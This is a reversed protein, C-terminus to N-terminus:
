EMKYAIFDDVFEYEPVSSAIAAATRKRYTGVPSIISTPQASPEPKPELTTGSANGFSFVTTTEPGPEPTPEPTPQPTTGTASGSSTADGGDDWEDGDGTDCTQRAELVELVERAEKMARIQVVDKRARPYRILTGPELEAPFSVIMGSRTMYKGGRSKTSDDLDRTQSFSPAVDPNQGKYTNDDPICQSGPDNYAECYKVNSSGPNGFGIIFQCPGCNCSSSIYNNIIAGQAKTM